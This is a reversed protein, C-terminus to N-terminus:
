QELAHPKRCERRPRFTASVILCARAALERLNECTEWRGRALVLVQTSTQGTLAVYMCTRHLLHLNSVCGEVSYSSSYCFEQLLNWTRIETNSMKPSMCSSGWASRWRSLATAPNNSAARAFTSREMAKPAAISRVLAQLATIKDHTHWNDWPRRSHGPCSTDPMCACKTHPRTMLACSVVLVACYQTMTFRFLTCTDSICRIRPLLM